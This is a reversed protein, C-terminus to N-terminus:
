ITNLNNKAGTQNPLGFLNQGRNNGADVLGSEFGLLQSSVLGGDNNNKESLAKSL